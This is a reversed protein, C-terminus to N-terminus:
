TSLYVSYQCIETEESPSWEHVSLNRALGSFYAHFPNSARYLDECLYVGGPQLHPLLAEFTPVQQHLQHGGDDIIVDIRPVEEVFHNWFIKDAQDGIFVRIGDGEYALCSPEVDVGYIHAQEGFYEKWMELSGGSFIGIEVIHVERGRFKSLHRDYIPFYHRWKWLGHGTQHADFYEELWNPSAPQLTPSSPNSYDRGYKYGPYFARAANSLLLIADWLLLMGRGLQTEKATEKWGFKHRPM